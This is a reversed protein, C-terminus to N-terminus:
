EVSTNPDTEADTILFNGLNRLKNAFNVVPVGIRNQLTLKMPSSVLRASRTFSWYTTGDDGVYEYIKLVPAAASQKLIM